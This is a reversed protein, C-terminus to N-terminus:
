KGKVAKKLDPSGNTEKYVEVSVDMKDAKAKMVADADKPYCIKLRFYMDKKDLGQVKVKDGVKRGTAKKDGPEMIRVPEIVVMEELDNLKSEDWKTINLESM